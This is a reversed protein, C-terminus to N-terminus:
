PHPGVPISRLLDGSNKHEEAPGKELGRSRDKSWQDLEDIDSRPIKEIKAQGGEWVLLQKGKVKHDDGDISLTAQGRFVKLRPPEGEAVDLRYLGKKQLHIVNAGILVSMRDDGAKDVFEIVASGAVLRLQVDSRNASLIKVESSRGLRLCNDAGLAIEAFGNGTAFRQKPALVKAGVSDASLPKGDLLLQGVGHRLFGVESPYAAFVGVLGILVPLLSISTRM